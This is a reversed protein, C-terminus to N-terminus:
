SPKSAAGMVIINATHDPWRAASVRLNDALNTRPTPFDLPKGEPWFALHRDM